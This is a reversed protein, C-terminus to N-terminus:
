IHNSEQIFVFIGLAIVGVILSISGILAIAEIKNM